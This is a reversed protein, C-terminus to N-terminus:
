FTFLAISFFLSHLLYRPLAAVKFMAAESARLFLSIIYLDSPFSPSLWSSIWLSVIGLLFALVFVRFRSHPCPKRCWCPPGCPQLPNLLPHSAPCPSLCLLPWVQFVRPASQSKNLSFIKLLPTIQSVNLLFKTNFLFLVTSLYLLSLSVSTLFGCGYRLFFSPPARFWPVLQSSWSTLVWNSKSIRTFFQQNRYFLSGSLFASDGTGQICGHVWYM